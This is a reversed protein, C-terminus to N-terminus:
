IMLLANTYQGVDVDYVVKFWKYFFDKELDEYKRVLEGVNM